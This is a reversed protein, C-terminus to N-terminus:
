GSFDAVEVRASDCAEAYSTFSKNLLNQVEASYNVHEHEFSTFVVYEFVKKNMSVM